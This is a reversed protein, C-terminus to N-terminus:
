RNRLIKLLPRRLPLLIRWLWSYIRYWLARCSHTKGKRTFSVVKGLVTESDFEGDLTCCADGITQIKGQSIKQIRHLLYRGEAPMFLIIDGKKLPTNVKKLVVQDRRHVLLPWMSNGTVTFSANLGQDLMRRIEEFFVGNEVPTQIANM